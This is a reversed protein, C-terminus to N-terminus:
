CWKVGCPDSTPTCPTDSGTQAHPSKCTSHRTGGLCNHCDPGLEGEVFCAQFQSRSCGMEKVASTLVLM